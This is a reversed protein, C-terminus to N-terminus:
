EDEIWITILTGLLMGVLLGDIVCMIRAGGTM